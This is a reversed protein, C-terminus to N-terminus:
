AQKLLVVSIALKGNISESEISLLIFVKGHLLVILSNRIKECKALSLPIVLSHIVLDLLFNTQSVFLSELWGLLHM